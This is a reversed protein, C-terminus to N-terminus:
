LDTQTTTRLHTVLESAVRSFEGVLGSWGQDFEFGFRLNCYTESDTNARACNDKETYILPYEKILKMQWAPLTSQDFQTLM